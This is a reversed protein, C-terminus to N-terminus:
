YEEWGGKGDKKTSAESTASARFPEKPEPPRPGEPPEREEGGRSRVFGYALMLVIGVVLGLIFGTMTAGTSSPEGTTVDSEQLVSLSATEANGMGDVAELTFENRGDVLAWIHRFEGGALVNVTEGNLTLTAGVETFGHITVTEEKTRFGPQPSQVDITPATTDVFVRQSFTQAQNGAADAMYIDLDNVGEELDFRHRVDTGTPLETGGELTIRSVEDLTLHVEVAPATSFLNGDVYVLEGGLPTMESQYTPPTLDRIVVVKASAGNEAADVVTIIFETTGELVTFQKVFRGSTLPVVEDNVLVNDITPDDVDGSIYISSERVYVEPEEPAVIELVPPTWDVHLTRVKEAMNGAQDTSTVTITFDSEVLDVTKRFTGNIVEVQEGNVRLDAGDETTGDVVASRANTWIDEEPRLVVLDPFITDRVLMLDMDDSNGARDTAALNFYNSGEVLDLDLTFIGDEGVNVPVFNVELTAHVETRGTIVVTTTNVLHGYPDLEIIPLVTDVLFTISVPEGENGVKDTPVLILTHEGDPLSTLPLSWGWDSWSTLPALTGGDLSHEILDLGSGKEDYVGKALITDTPYGTDDEPMEVTIVPAFDDVLEVISPTYTRLDIRDGRFGYGDIYMAPYLYTSTRRSTDTVEWGLMDQSRVGSLNFRAVEYQTFNELVLEGKSIPDGDKWKAGLIGIDLYARVWSNAAEVSGSGWPHETDRITITSGGIAVFCELGGAMHTFSSNHLTLHLSSDATLGRTCNIASLHGVSATASAGWPGTLAYATHVNEVVNNTLTAAIDDTLTLTLGVSDALDHANIRNNSLTYDGSDTQSSMSIAEECDIFDCDDVVLDSNSGGSIYVGRAGGSFTTGTVTLDMDPDSGWRGFYVGAGWWGGASSGHFTSDRISVTFDGGSAGWNSMYVNSQEVDEITVNDLNLNAQAYIGHYRCDSIVTNTMSVTGGVAMIGRVSSGSYVGNAHSVQCGELVVDDRFWFDVYADSGKITSDYAELRGGTQVELSYQGNVAAIVNLTCNVLKLVGGNGVTVNGHVNITMEFLQNPATIDWDDPFTINGAETGDTSLLLIFAAVIIFLLFAIVLRSGSPM